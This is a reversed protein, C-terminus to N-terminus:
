ATTKVRHWMAQPLYWPARVENTWDSTNSVTTKRRSVSSYTPWQFIDAPTESKWKLPVATEPAAAQKVIAASISPCKAWNQVKKETPPLTIERQEKADVAAKIAAPHARDYPSPVPTCHHFMITKCCCGRVITRPIKTTFLFLCTNTANTILSLFFFLAWLLFLKMM